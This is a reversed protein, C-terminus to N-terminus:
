RDFDQSILAKFRHQWTLPKRSIADLYGKWRQLTYVYEVIKERELPEVKKHALFYFRLHMDMAINRHPESIHKQEYDELIALVHAVEKKNVSPLNLKRRLASKAM